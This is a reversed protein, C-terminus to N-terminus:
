RGHAVEQALVKVYKRIERIAKGYTDLSFNSFIGWYGYAGFFSLVKKSMEMSTILGRKRFWPDLGCHGAICAVTGCDTYQIWHHINFHHKREHRTLGEMVRQVQQWRKLREKPSIVKFPKTEM